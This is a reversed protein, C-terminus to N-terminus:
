AAEPPPPEEQTPGCLGLERFVELGQLLTPSRLQVIGEATVILRGGPRRAQYRRVVNSKGDIALLSIM